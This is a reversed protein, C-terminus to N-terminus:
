QKIYADMQAYAKDATKAKNVTVDQTIDDIKLTPAVGLNMLGGRIDFGVVDPYDSAAGELLGVEEETLELGEFASLDGDAVATRVEDDELAAIGKALDEASM